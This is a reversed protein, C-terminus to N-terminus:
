LELKIVNGPLNDNMQSQESLVWLINGRANDPAPAEGDTFYMLCSYKHFNANYYDIVAQFDTGGRGHIELNERPNFRKISRIATDCEVIIVESGTKCLHYLENLFEKLEKTSVSGSTDIAALIHKQQKVKLGPFDPLRKNLKRRSSKTYIKTSKGAFRRIYGKWDFKPPTITNLKELIESFEGPITGRSKQVQDAIQKVIHGTQNQLLKQMAESLEQVMKDWQHNPLSVTQGNPLKVETQGPTNDGTGQGDSDGKNANACAMAALLAQVSSNKKNKANMLQEYYYWTGKGPELHLEPFSEIFCGHEPLWNRDIYQNICIDMAVNMVEQDAAGNYDTLHFFGIHLRLTLQM